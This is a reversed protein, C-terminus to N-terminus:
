NGAHERVGAREAMQSRWRGAALSTSTWPSLIDHVMDEVDNAYKIREQEYQYEAENVRQRTLEGVEMSLIEERVFNQFQVTEQLKAMSPIEGAPETSVNEFGGHVPYPGLLLIDPYERTLRGESDKDKLYQRNWNEPSGYYSAPMWREVLWGHVGDFAYKLIPKMGREVRIPKSSSPLLLGSETTVMGGREQVTLGKAWIKFAGGNITYRNSTHVLRFNNEGYINQGGVRGLYDQLIQPARPEGRIDDRSIAM